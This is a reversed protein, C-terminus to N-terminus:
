TNMMYGPIFFQKLEPNNMDQKCKNTNHNTVDKWMNEIHVGTSVFNLVEQHCTGM